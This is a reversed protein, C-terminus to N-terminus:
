LTNPQLKINLDRTIQVKGGEYTFTFVAKCNTEKKNILTSLIKPMEGRVTTKNNAAKLETSDINIDDENKDSLFKVSISKIKESMNNTYTFEYTNKSLDCTIYDPAVILADKNASVRISADCKINASTYAFSKEVTGLICVMTMISLIAKSALKM